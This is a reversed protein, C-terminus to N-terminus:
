DRKILQRLAHLTDAEAAPKDQRWRLMRPFRVAIGSKHRPSPQIGEFGLEFVLEPRVACVPGFRELTNARIFADVQRMEADTLGSYAKAFPVLSREGAEGSWVAFTYDSFLGARRGHGRQAYILVADVSYPDVKWKWWQGRADLKVRGTGYPADNRKLMLGEVGRERASARLTALASWDGRLVPSLPLRPHALPALLAQLRRRREAQPLTRIDAGDQELLDYAMFAVPVSELLRRSLQKRTIRTQLRAFPLAAGDQWALIEGDLVCGAPLWSAADMLEPFRESVLEEGRSWLAAQEGRRVLQGRIGDWKWEALWDTADGLQATPDGQLPQALFFPYPQLGTEGCGGPAVLAHFRAADLGAAVPDAALYGVLRQAITEAPLGSVEALARTVLLRSVGVRLAGTILKNFLFRPAVDLERWAQRLGDARQEAPTGRLEGLRDMWRHLPMDTPADPPPLVLALTEALDGVAQYCEEFLWDPLGAVRAGTEKLVRTPVAQRTKGGSLVYVAWAADGADAERFYDRMARVRSRTSTSSDLEAYLAAFRKM